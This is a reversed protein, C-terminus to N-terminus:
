ATSLGQAPTVRAARRAPVVSAILGIVVALTAILAIRVGPIDLQVSTQEPLVAQVGFYAYGIGLAIGLLAGTCALLVGEIALTGRLQGRTLGLARLLANERSRELVSLSLSNAIGVTAILVAVALLATAILVMVDLADILAERMAAPGNLFTQQGQTVEGIDAVAASADVDDSVRILLGAQRGQPDLQEMLASSAVFADGAPVQILTASVEEGERGTLTVTEGLALGYSQLLEDDAGLVDGTLSQALGEQRMVTAAEVPDAGFVEVSFPEGGDNRLDIWSVSVPATAAVSDLDAVAAAIAPELEERVGQTDWTETTLILDIPATADITGVVSRTATAAGVSTMTILTVGIILAASTAAARGPNSMVTGLALRGPVGAGRAPVGLVKLIAPVLIISAMLVGVFSVVGGVIGIAISRTLASAVVAAGGGFFLVAAVGLRALGARRTPAVGPQATLAAVPPLSTAKMSPVFAAGWTMVLGVVWPLVLAAVSPSLSLGSGGLFEVDGIVLGAVSAFGIGLGVGIASAVAGLIGAEILVSRRLQRRTAGVCRLLALEQSRQTLVITFTNAIVLAATVLGVAGFTLLVTGLADADGMMVAVRDDAAQAGTRVTVDPGLAALETAVSDAAGDGAMVRLQYFDVTPVWSSLAEDTGFMMLSGGLDPVDGVDLVGTVLVERPPADPYEEPAARLTLVDGTAAGTIQAYSSSVVVEDARTPLAGDVLAARSSTPLTMLAPYGGSAEQLPLFATPDVREIDPRQRLEALTEADVEGGYADVVLDYQAVGDSWAERIGERAANLLLLSTTIFAVGVAIALSTAVLRRSHGRVGAVALNVRPRRSQQGAATSRRSM